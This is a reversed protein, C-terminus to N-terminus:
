IEFRLFIDFGKKRCISIFLMTMEFRIIMGYCHYTLDFKQMIQMRCVIYTGGGGCDIYVGPYGYVYILIRFGKQNKIQM